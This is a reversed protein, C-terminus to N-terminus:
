VCRNGINQSIQSNDGNIKIVESQVINYSVACMFLIIGYFLAPLSKYLNLGMWETAMPILSMWFIWHLNQRKYVDLHTYSVPKGNNFSICITGIWENKEYITDIWERVKVYDKGIARDAAIRQLSENQMCEMPLIEVESYVSELRSVARKLGEDYEEYLHSTNTKYVWIMLIIGFILIPLMLFIMMLVNTKKILSYNEFKENM